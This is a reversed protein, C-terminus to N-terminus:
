SRVSIAIRSRIHDLAHGVAAIFGDVHHIEMPLAVANMCLVQSPFYGQKLLALFVAPIFNKDTRALARYDAVEEDTFHIGFLSGIGVVRAPIQKNQEFLDHLGNRLRDGMANLHAFANPTLQRLTALGAAMAIPHASFTGSQTFGTPGQRHDLLSMIDARGGFAGVPFGGGIIKGFTTLDPKINCLGQLGAVGVRFSAM